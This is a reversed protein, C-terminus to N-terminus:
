PAVLLSSSWASALSVGLKIEVGGICLEEFSRPDDHSYESYINKNEEGGKGAVFCPSTPQIQHTPAAAPGAWCARERERGGERGGEGEERTISGRMVVVLETDHEGNCNIVRAKHKHSPM